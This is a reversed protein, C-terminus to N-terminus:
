LGLYRYKLFKRVQTNTSHSLSTSREEMFKLYTEADLINKTLTLSNVTYKGM